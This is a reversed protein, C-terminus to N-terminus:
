FQVRLGVRIDDRELTDQVGDFDFEGTNYSLLASFGPTFAYAGSIEYFRGESHDYSDYDLEAGLELKGDLVPYRAGLEFGTGDDDFDPDLGALAARSLELDEFGVTAYVGLKELWVTQIGLALGFRDVQLGTDDGETDESYGQLFFLEGLKVRVRLDLGDGQDADKFDVDALYGIELHSYSPQAAAFGSCAALVTACLLRTLRM